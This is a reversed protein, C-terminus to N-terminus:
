VEVFRKRYEQREHLASVYRRRMEAGTIDGNVWLTVLATFEPDDELAIGREKWRAIVREAIDTRSAM